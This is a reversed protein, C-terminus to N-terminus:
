HTVGFVDEDEEEYVFISKINKRDIAGYIHSNDSSLYAFNEDIDMLYTTYTTNGDGDDEELELPEYTKIVVKQGIFSGLSNTLEM